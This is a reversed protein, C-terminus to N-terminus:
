ITRESQQNNCALVLPRRKRKLLGSYLMIIEQTEWIKCKIYTYWKTACRILFTNFAQISQYCKLNINDQVKERGSWYTLKGLVNKDLLNKSKLMMSRHYNVVSCERMSTDSINNSQNTPLKINDRAPPM